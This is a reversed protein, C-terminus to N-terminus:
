GSRAHRGAHVRCLAARVDVLVNDPSRTADRYEIFHAMNTTKPRTSSPRATRAQHGHRGARRGGPNRHRRGEDVDIVTVLNDDENAIYLTKGTPRSSSSSPTPARPCPASSRRADRHRDGRDHRRRQRLDSSVEGDHSITIGRPRQGVNITKVVEMTTSDVVSVTNDKENSVYVM